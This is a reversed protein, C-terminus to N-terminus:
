QYNTVKNKQTRAMEAELKKNFSVHQPIAGRWWSVRPRRMVFIV